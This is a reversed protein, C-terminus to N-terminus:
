IILIQIFIYIYIKIIYFSHYMPMYLITKKEIKILLINFSKKKSEPKVSPLFLFNFPTNKSIYFLKTNKKCEIKLVLFRYM